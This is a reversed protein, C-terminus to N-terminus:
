SHTSVESNPSKLKQLFQGFFVAFIGLFGGCVGGLAVILKRKPKERTEPAVAPDIVELAFDENVNALMAKQKESELLNYLIARMDQLTTKALEQELYGVRKKSDAIAQARLQENLQKVLDNAWQAAVEPDKWSISLTILNSKDQDVEIAGRISSIGDEAIFAKQGLQLKWSNSAADWFDEFIIPLLNKEEIFKKLFVRTELTALVREINSDAPITVGAMAALGGFQSLVSSAGSKEEQAPTLLTEAKFVEPSYLAYVVALGTCLITIGVITKWAQLLTRILELLDIEDEDSSPGSEVMVYKTSSKPDESM